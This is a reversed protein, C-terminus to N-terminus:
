NSRLQESVGAWPSSAGGSQTNVEGGDHSEPYKPQQGRWALIADAQAKCAEETEGTLLSAPVGTDASVKDRTNRTDITKQLADRQATLAQTDTNYKKEWDEIGRLRNRAETLEQQLGDREGTLATVREQLPTATKGYEAMIAEVAADPLRAGEGLDLNRLFERKM